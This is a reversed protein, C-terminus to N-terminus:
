VEFYPGIFVLELLGFEEDVTSSPDPRRHMLMSDHKAVDSVATSIRNFDDKLFSDAFL